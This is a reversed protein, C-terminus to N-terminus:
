GCLVNCIILHPPTPMQQKEETDGKNKWNKKSLINMTWMANLFPCNGDGTGARSV